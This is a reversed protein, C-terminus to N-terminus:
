AFILFKDVVYTGKMKIVLVEHDLNILIKVSKHKRVLLSDMNSLIVRSLVHFKVDLFWVTSGLM